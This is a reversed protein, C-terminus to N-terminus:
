AFSPLSVLPRPAPVNSTGSLVAYSSKARPFTSLVTGGIVGYQPKSRMEFTLMVSRNSLVMMSSISQGTRSLHCRCTTSPLSPPFMSAKLPRALMFSVRTATTVPVWLAHSARTLSELSQMRGFTRLGVVPGGVSATIIDVGDQYTKNFTVILVDNGGPGNCGFIRYASLSVGPATGTFGYTNNQAAVIGAVHSGHGRCDMPDEGPVPTNTGNYADDVSDHGFSVLCDKGYCGGLAPHLYDVGNDIVAVKIGKGTIGKAKLKDVQTM